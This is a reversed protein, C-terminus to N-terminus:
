RAAVAKNGLAVELQALPRKYFPSVGPQVAFAERSLAALAEAQRRQGLKLACLGAVAHDRAADPDYRYWGRAWRQEMGALLRKLGQAPRDALCEAEGVLRRQSGWYDEGDASAAIASTLAPKPNGQWVALLAETNILMDAYWDSSGASTHLREFAPASRLLAQAEDFRSAMGLNYAVAVYNMVAIASTLGMLKSTEMREAHFRQAEDHRGAMTAVYGQWVVLRYRQEPTTALPRMAAAARSVLPDGLAINGAMAHLGGVSLDVRAQVSEPVGPGLALLESRAREAIVVAEDRRIKGYDSALAAFRTEALAARMRGVRGLGRLVTLAAEHHPRATAYGTAFPESVLTWRALALRMDVAGPSAAGEVAVADDIALLALPLARDFRGAQRLLEGRLLRAEARALTPASGIRQIEGEALTLERAAADGQGSAQLAQALLVRARVAAAPDDALLDLARRARVTADAVREAKLLARALLLIAAGQKARTADVAALTAVQRSAYDVALDDAGMDAFIGGVVGYLEAQLQPQGAFRTEILQGGRELLMEAPLQRLDVGGAGSPSNVRFIDVVFEKVVRAREAEDNAKRAQVLAVGSGSLVAVLVACSASYAVWHRRVSRRVRYGLSDPRALVAEGRLQREIDAALADATAYRKAADRQMAKGLIADVEGRLARAVAKDKVRSSAMPADGELIADEVAGLTSRKVEHPLVGTLLEYLLVGLSYVDSQVTIPEGAIQEPSAYHPTLVRGQEQTLGPQGPAAETLLKAIGFDLLRAQGDTTVMVNSPKLDRHVVLRGHAYAVARAVQVFLRLRAWTDLGQAECWADIPQGDIYEFALFPRGREDVGADYLRAIAPHELLTGIDRERAMRETLGAGWALRPLKLAVQRQYSGDAREALWVSGMGGRGIERLLRYPGVRDDTRAVSEDAPPLRPGDAMFAGTRTSQRSGLMERLQSELHAHEPPLAALWPEVEDDSMELAEDLLRSLLPLDSPNLAM